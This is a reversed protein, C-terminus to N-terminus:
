IPLYRGLDFPVVFPALTLNKVLVLFSFLWDIIDWVLDYGRFHNFMTMADQKLRQGLWRLAYTVSLPLNDVVATLLIVAKSSAWRCASQVAGLTVLIYVVFILLFSLSSRIHAM